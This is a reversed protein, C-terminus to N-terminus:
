NALFIDCIVWKQPTFSKAWFDPQTFNKVFKMDPSTKPVQFGQWYTLLFFRVRELIKCLKQEVTTWSIASVTTFISFHVPDLGKVVSWTTMLALHSLRFLEMKRQKSSTSTAIANKPPPAPFPKLESEHTLANWCFFTHEMLPILETRDLFPTHDM